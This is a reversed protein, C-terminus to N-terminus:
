KLATTAMMLVREIERERLWSMMLYHLTFLLLLFIIIFSLKTIFNKGDGRRAASASLMVCQFNFELIFFENLALKQPPTSPLFNIQM